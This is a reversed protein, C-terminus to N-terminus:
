FNAMVSAVAMIPVAAKPGFQYVLVPMLIIASGTGVIGSITGAILGVALVFLFGLITERDDNRSPWGSQQRSISVQIAKASGTLPACQRSGNARMSASKFRKTLRSKGRVCLHSRTRSGIRLIQHTNM